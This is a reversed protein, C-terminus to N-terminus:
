SRDVFQYATQSEGTELRTFPEITALTLKALDVGIKKPITARELRFEGPM